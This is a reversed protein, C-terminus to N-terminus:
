HTIMDFAQAFKIMENLKNTDLKRNINKRHQEVTRRSIYLKEAITPNNDGSCVLTLIEKERNTLLAYRRFNKKVYRNEDLIRHMKEGVKELQRVPTSLTILANQSKILKTTSFHWDYDQDPRPRGAQFFTLVAQEDQDQAMKLLYPMMPEWTEALIHTEFFKEFGMAEVEETTLGFYAEMHPNLYNLHFDDLNNMQIPVPLEENLEGLREAFDTNRADLFFTHMHQAELLERDTLNKTNV